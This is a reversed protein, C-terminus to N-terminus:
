VRFGLGKDQILPEQPTCPEAEVGLLESERGRRARYGASTLFGGFGLGWVGFGLGWVGFGLGWVGFGLGWVGFGLGWVGFGLGWVGFGM